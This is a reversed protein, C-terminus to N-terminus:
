LSVGPKERPRFKTMGPPPTAAPHAKLVDALKRALRDGEEPLAGHLSYFVALKGATAPPVVGDDDLLAVDLRVTAKDKVLVLRMVGDRVGHIERVEFGALQSGQAIPSLLALEEASPPPPPPAPASQSGAAPASGAPPSSAVPAPGTPSRRAVRLGLGGIAVVLAAAAIWRRV